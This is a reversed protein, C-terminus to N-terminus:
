KVQVNQRNVLTAFPVPVGSKILSTVSSKSLEPDKYKVCDDHGNQEMWTILAPADLYELATSKRYSVSVRPTSFAEGDLAFSLYEKLREAENEASKQRSTLSAVEAKIAAAEATYNKYLLAINEIKKDREMVLTNLAEIDAIEGSEADVLAMIASDIEYLKM